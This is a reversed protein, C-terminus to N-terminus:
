YGYPADAVDGNAGPTIRITTLQDNYGKPPISPWEPLRKVEEGNCGKPPTCPWEPLRKTEEGNYDKPPIGPWKSLRKAINGNYGKPLIGPWEPLRVTAHNVVLLATFIMLSLLIDFNTM